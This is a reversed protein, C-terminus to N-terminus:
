GQGSALVATLIESASPSTSFWPTLLLPYAGVAIDTRPLYTWKPTYLLEFKGSQMGVILRILSVCSQVVGSSFYSLEM